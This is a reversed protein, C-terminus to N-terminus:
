RRRIRLTLLAPTRDRNGARDIALVRFAHSGPRLRYVRPSRCPRFAGRDLKCRFTTGSENATFAFAVARRPGTAFLVRAPRRLFRTQPPRRDKTLDPRPQVLLQPATEDPPSEPTPDPPTNPPRFSNPVREEIDECAAPAADPGNAPLDILATDWGEGCDITLDPDDTPTGSNALITDDGAAAFYSDQGPRGLLQNSSSDGIMVDGFSTGETDEIATLGTFLAPSPCQPKGGPGILGATEAGMDIAVGQDFNAWNANDRAPGGDLSDGDCIANSVFLDEGPGADLDDKGSNNPVADDGGGASSVDAGAGDVLADETNGGALNDNGDGGLLVVSTTEPFGSAILVDTGALGALVLSDPDGTLACTVKDGVPSSCGGDASPSADFDGESDPALTFTVESASYSATIQDDEDSGALYLAPSQGSEPAMLGVSITGPDRLDVEEEDTECEFTMAADCSDGDAGGYAVDAGGEGLIVDAGGGGYFTQAAFTGVLYDPFATGIVVEFNTGDVDEDVGGGEPALGNDGKGTGLNVYVGRGDRDAPFGAYDSFDPYNGPKDFFGPTAGTAYSLTDIGGGTNQIDDITADGRVFDNGAEGDLMSDAGFGGSLRDNDGGGRLQDDGIGGYLRDDGLGGNLRDNGRQGYLTDNGGEGNVITVSRPARITDACPTGYITNGVTEPGESCSPTARVPAALSLLVLFVVPLALANSTQTAYRSLGRVRGPRREIRVRM